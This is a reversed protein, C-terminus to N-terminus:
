SSGCVISAFPFDSASGRGAARELRARSEAHVDRVLCAPLEDAALALEADHPVREVGHRAVLPCRLEDREDAHRPDALTAEDELERPDDLGVGLQDGPALTAAERVAVSDREPREALDDLRLGSDVLLIWGLARRAFIVCRRRPARRRRPRHAAPDLAMQEGEDPERGLALEAAVPAAFCERRPPAEELRHRVLPREDEDDLVEVPGVLAQEVEDVLEDVPHGVHREEDDRRGPRLEELPSRAPAAALQVRRRERESRKDSSSVDIRRAPSSPVGTSAASDCCRQELSGATIGEVGLLERLEEELLPRRLRQGQRFRELADDRRTEVPQGERLLLEQPVRCDDSLDEPGSRKAAVGGLRSGGEVRELALREHALLPASRDLALRLEREGVRENAVDGVSLDGAGLTGLLVSVRRLPDLTEAPGLVVGLHERVM